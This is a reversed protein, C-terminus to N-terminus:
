VICNGCEPKPYSSFVTERSEILADEISRRFTDDCFYILMGGVVPNSLQNHGRVMCWLWEGSKQLLRIGIFKRQPEQKLEDEFASRCLQIDDPHVYDFSNNGELDEAEYGLINVVSESSFSITGVQDVLLIGDLSDAILARFFLENQMAQEAVKKKETFDETYPDPKDDNLAMGAWHLQQDQSVEDQVMSVEWYIAYKDNGTVHHLLEIPVVSREEVCKRIAEHYGTLSETAISGSFIKGFSQQEGITFRYNFLDNSSLCHGNLNTILYFFRPSQKLHVPLQNTFISPTM